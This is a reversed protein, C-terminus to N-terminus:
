FTGACQETLLTFHLTNLMIKIINYFTSETLMTRRQTRMYM